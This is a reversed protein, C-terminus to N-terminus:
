ILKRWEDIELHQPRKNEIGLKILEEKMYGLTNSLKKRRQKFARKALKLIKLSEEVNIDKHVKINIIASDVKPAPHFCDSKVIDIIKALSTKLPNPPPGPQPSSRKLSGV